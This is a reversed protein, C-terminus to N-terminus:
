WKAYFELFIPRDGKLARAYAEKPKPTVQFQTIKKTPASNAKIVQPLYVMGLSILIVAAVIGLKTKGSLSEAM